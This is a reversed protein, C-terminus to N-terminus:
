LPRRAYRLLNVGGTARMRRTNTSTLLRTATITRHEANSPDLSAHTLAATAATGNTSNQTARATAGAMEPSRVSSMGVIVARYTMRMGINSSVPTLTATTPCKLVVSTFVTPVHRRVATVATGTSNKMIASLMVGGMRQLQDQEMMQGAVCLGMSTTDGIGGTTMGTITMTTM